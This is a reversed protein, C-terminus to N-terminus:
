YDAYLPSTKVNCWRKFSSRLQYVYKRLFMFDILSNRGLFLLLDVKQEKSPGSHLLSPRSSTYPLPVGYAGETRGRETRWGLKEEKEKKEEGEDKGWFQVM